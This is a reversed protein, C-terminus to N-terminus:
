LDRRLFAARAGLALLALYLLTWLALGLGGPGGLVESPDVDPNLSGLSALYLAMFPLLWGALESVGQLAGSDLGLALQHLLAAGLGAGFLMFVAIGNATATLFTSGLLSLACVVLVAGVLGAGAGLVADPFWQGFAGTVLVLVTFFAVVYGGSMAAAAALRAALLQTRGLPRVVLPQLLGREADGRVTSITLFVALTTGLFLVVFMAFGLLGTGVAAREGDGGFDEDLGGFIALAGATYAALFLGTLVLVVLFVRRRLSEQVAYRVVTAWPSM